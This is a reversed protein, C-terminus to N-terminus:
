LSYGCDANMQSDQIRIWSCPFQDFNVFLDPKRAKLFAKAGIKQKKSRNGVKFINEHLFVVKQTKFDIWPGSGSLDANGQSRPEPDANFGIRIWLV